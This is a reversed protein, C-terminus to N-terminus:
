ELEELNLGQPVLSPVYAFGRQDRMHGGRKIVMRSTEMSVNRKGPQKSATSLLAKYEQFYSGFLVSLDPKSIGRWSVAFVLGEANAFQKIRNGDATMEHVSYQSTSFSAKQSGKLKQMNTDANAIPEGLTAHSTFSYLFVILSLFLLEQTKM